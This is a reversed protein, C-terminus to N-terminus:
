RTVGKSVTLRLLLALLGRVAALLARDRIQAVHLALLKLARRVDYLAPGVVLLVPIARDSEDARHPDFYAANAPAFALVVGFVGLPVLGLSMASAPTLGAFFTIM